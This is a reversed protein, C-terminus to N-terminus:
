PAVRLSDFFTDVADAPLQAGLVTAQFVWTGHSFVAVQAQVTAGDPQRGAAQVRGSAAQPTAGPVNLPLEAAGGAGLNALAASRLGVLAPGVRAPDAVDASALAWTQGGASCAQLQLRVPAGALPLERAMTGPKCPLLVRVAAGEARVERWDLTPSCAALALVAGAPWVIRACPMVAIIRAGRWVIVAM